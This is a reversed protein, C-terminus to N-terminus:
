LCDEDRMVRQPLPIVEYNAEVTAASVDATAAMFTVASLAVCKFLKKM